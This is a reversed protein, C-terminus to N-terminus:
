PVMTAGSRNEPDSQRLPRREVMAFERSFQNLLPDCADLARQCQGAAKVRAVKRVLIVARLLQDSLERFRAPNESTDAFGRLTRVQEVWDGAEDIVDEWDRQQLERDVEEQQAIVRQLAYAYPTYRLPPLEADADAKSREGGIPEIVGVEVDDSKYLACGTLPGVVLMLVLILRSM